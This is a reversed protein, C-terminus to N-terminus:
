EEFHTTIKGSSVAAIISKALHRLKINRNSSATRLITFAEEQSCKNQAMIAGVALDIVTRSQMAAALDNRADSLQAIKLALRLSKSAHSAFVEAHEVDSDSFANARESYLNLAARTDGEVLLPVSLISRLGQHSAAEVYDPWRHERLLDPVLVSTLKDMATLCPGEFDNQLEDMVRARDDSSAATASKKRRLVTIGCFVTSDPHSLSEASFAALDSLFAEVDESGLVLDLFYGNQLAEQEPRPNVM